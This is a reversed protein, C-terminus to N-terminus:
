KKLVILDRYITLIVKKNKANNIMQANYQQTSYPCIIRQESKFGTKIAIEYLKFAHDELILNNNYQSGQIIFGIYSGKAMKKHLEKFIFNFNKYFDELNMNSLDTKQNTYKGKAQFISYPPDLFILKAKKVKEPISKTADNIIIEERTKEIDYSYCERNMVKCVDNVVGGGAFLDIVIDKKNTYYYLLNFAFEPPMWGFRDLGFDTRKDIVNWLNYIFKKINYREFIEDDTFDEIKKEKMDKQIKEKQEQRKIDKYAKNISLKEEKIKLLKEPAKEKIDKLKSYNREKLGIKKSVEKRTNVKPLTALGKGARSLNEKAKKQYEIELKQGLEFRDIDTLNRRNLQNLLIWIKAETENEFSMEATKFSINNKQCIEFRNHGDLITENWVIIADRCGEKKISEELGEYEEKSLTPILEQFEKNIKIEM